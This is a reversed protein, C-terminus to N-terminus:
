NLALDEEFAYINKESQCLHISYTFINEGGWLSLFEGGNSFDIPEYQKPFYDTIITLNIPFM